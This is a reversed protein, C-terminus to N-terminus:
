IQRAKSLVEFAKEYDRQGLYVRGMGIYCNAIGSTDHIEERIKLAKLYYENVKEANGTSSFYGAYVMYCKAEEKRNNQKQTEAALKGLYVFGSDINAFKYINSIEYM